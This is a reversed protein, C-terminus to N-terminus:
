EPRSQIECEGFVISFFALNQATFFKLEQPQAPITQGDGDASERRNRSHWETARKAEHSDVPFCADHIEMVGFFQVFMVRSFSISLRGLSRSSLELRTHAATMEIAVFECETFNIADLGPTAMLGREVNECQM